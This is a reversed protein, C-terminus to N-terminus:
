RTRTRAAPSCTAGAGGAVSAVPVVLAQSAPRPRAAAASPATRRGPRSSRAQRRPEIGLVHPSTIRRRDPSSRRPPRASPRARRWTCPRRRARRNRSDAPARPRRRAPPARGPEVSTSAIPLSSDRRRASARPAPRSRSRAPRPRRGSRRPRPAPPPRPRRSASGRRGVAPAPRAPCRRSRASCAAAARRGTRARRGRRGRAELAEGLRHAAQRTARALARGLAAELRQLGAAERRQDAAVLLDRQQQSRQRCACRPRLGPRAATRRARSRCTAGRRLRQALASPSSGCM